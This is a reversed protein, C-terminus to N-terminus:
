SVRIYGFEAANFESETWQASTGPNTQYIAQNNAYGTGPAFATGQYDVSSHRIVPAITCTGADTKRSTLNVQVGYITAGAVPVDQVTFTDTLSASAASNYDGDDNPPLEDVNQWNNGASPTWGTTAGAATPQRPDVRVDGLMDNWPAAGTGDCVYFDDFDVNLSPTGSWSPSSAESPIGLGVVTWAESAGPSTNQGTLSLISIGNLRVDVTGTSAHIKVKLEVYTATTPLTASSTGLVTGTAWGGRVASLTRNSNVRLSVQITTGLRFMTVPFGNTTHPALAPMTVSVGVIGTADGPALTKRLGGYANANGSGGDNIRFGGSSRRGSTANITAQGFFGSEISSWKETVDATVYHDFSDMFLLAM